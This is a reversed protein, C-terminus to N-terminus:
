GGVEGLIAKALALADEFGPRGLLGHAFRKGAEVGPQDFPNVGWMYGTLATEIEFHMFLAGLARADLHPVHIYAIEQRAELLAAMTAKRLVDLIDAVTKNAFEGLDPDLSSMDPVEIDPWPGGIGLFTYAKDEPGEMFLQLLSHQDTSGIAGVPTQGVGGSPGRKGLSEAWLQCFWQGFLALWDCYSWLVRVRKKGWLTEHHWAASLVSPHKLITDRREGPRRLLSSLALAGDRMAEVDVGAMALPFLSVATLVSFRGGVKPPVELARIGFRDAIRRIAGKKPDTTFVVGERLAEQSGAELIRHAFIAFQTLTEVTSGSKTVVNLLTDEPSFWALAKEVSAADLNSLVMVEKGERKAKGLTLAQLAAQTGLASGGIGLVLVKKFREPLSAKLDLVEKLIREEEPVSLFSAEGEAEALLRGLAKQADTLAEENLSRASLIHFSFPLGDASQTDPGKRSTDVM